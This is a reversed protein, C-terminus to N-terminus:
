MKVLNRHNFLLKEYWKKFNSSKQSPDPFGIHMFMGFEM